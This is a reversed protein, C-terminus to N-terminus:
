FFIKFPCSLMFRPFDCERAWLLIETTSNKIKFDIRTSNKPDMKHAQREQTGRNAQRINRQFEKQNDCKLEM